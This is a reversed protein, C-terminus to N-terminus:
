GKFMSVLALLFAAVIAVVALIFSHHTVELLLKLVQEVMGGAWAARSVGICRQSASSADRARRRSLSHSSLAGLRTFARRPM